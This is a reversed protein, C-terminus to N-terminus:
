TLIPSHGSKGTKFARRFNRRKLQGVAVPLNKVVNVAVSKQTRIMQCGQGGTTGLLHQPPQLAKIVVAVKFPWPALNVV